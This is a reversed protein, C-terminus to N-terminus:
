GRTGSSAGAAGAGRTGPGDLVPAARERTVPHGRHASNDLHASASLYARYLAYSEAGYRCVLRWDIRAGCAAARPIRITFEVFPDTPERPIVSPVFMAVDGFGPVYLYSHRGRIADLAAPLRHWDRRRNTWGDPHLWSVVGPNEVGGGDNLVDFVPFRLTHWNGDREAVPLHLMAGVFLRVDWGAAGAAEGRAQSGSGPFVRM